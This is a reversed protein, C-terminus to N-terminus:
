EIPLLVIFYGFRRATYLDPDHVPLGTMRDWLSVDVRQRRSPEVALLQQGYGEFM